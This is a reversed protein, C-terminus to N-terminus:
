IRTPMILHRYAADSDVLTTPDSALLVPRVSTTFGLAVRDGSIQAVAERVRTGSFGVVLVETGVLGTVEAPVTRGTATRGTDTGTRPGVTLADRGVQVTITGGRDTLAEAKVLTRLLEARDVDAVIVPSPLLQRYRPFESDSLRVTATVPGGAITVWHAAKGRGITDLPPPLSVTVPGAPLLKIIKVLLAVPLLWSAHDGQGDPTDVPVTTVGLRFRDTTAMRLTGPAIEVHVGQLMPLTDDRGASVALRTIAAALTDRDVTFVALTDAAAGPLAPYDGIPLGDIPLSFGAVDVTVADHSWAETGGDRAVRVGSTHTTALGVPHARWVKAPDGKGAGKAMRTLEAHSVLVRGPYAAAVPLAVRVSTEYDFASVTVTNGDSEILTGGLVPLPPRSGVVVATANLADTLDGLSASFACSEDTVTPPATTPHDTITM